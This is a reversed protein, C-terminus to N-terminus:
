QGRVIAPFSKEFPIVVVRPMTKTFLSLLRVRMDGADIQTNRRKGTCIPRFAPCRNGRNKPVTFLEGGSEGFDGIPHSRHRFGEPPDHPLHTEEMLAPFDDQDDRVPFGIGDGGRLLYEFLSLFISVTQPVFAVM